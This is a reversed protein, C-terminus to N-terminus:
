IEVLCEYGRRYVDQVFIKDLPPVATGRPEAMDGFIELVVKIDQKSVLSIIFCIQFRFM